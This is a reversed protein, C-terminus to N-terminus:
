GAAPTGNSINTLLACKGPFESFLAQNSYARYEFGAHESLERFIKGEPPGFNSRDFTVDCAGLRKFYQVPFMYAYGEKVYNSAQIGITGNHSHFVIERSGTETNKMDVASNYRRWAAQDTALDVWTKPNVYLKLDVDNGKQFCRQAAQQVHEFSLDEAGTHNNEGVAYTSARWLDYKAYDIGFLDAGQPDLIAHLGKMALHKGSTRAGNDATGFFIFDGDVAGGGGTSSDKVTITQTDLDVATITTSCSKTAGTADAKDWTEIPAGTMGSWIGPAWDYPEIIFTADAGAASATKIKGLGAQGYMLDIELYKHIANKMNLVMHQTAFRFAKTDGKVSKAAANYSLASRLVHESGKISAPETVGAVPANLHFAGGTQDGFSIGHELELAVPQQFELGESQSEKFSVDNQLVFQYPIPELVDDGYIIKFMGDLTDVTNAGAFEAM